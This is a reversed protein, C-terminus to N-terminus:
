ARSFPKEARSRGGGPSRRLGTQDGGDPGNRVRYGVVFGGDTDGLYRSISGVLRRLGAVLVRGNPLPTATM